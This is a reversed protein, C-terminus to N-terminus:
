EKWQMHEDEDESEPETLSDSSDAEDDQCGRTDANNSWQGGDNDPDFQNNDSDAEHPAIQSHRSQQSSPEALTVCSALQTAISETLSSGTRKSAPRDGRKKNIRFKLQLGPVQSSSTLLLSIQDVLYCVWEM